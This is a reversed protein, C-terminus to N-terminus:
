IEWEVEDSMQSGCNPCFPKHRNSEIGGIGSHKGCVSCWSQWRCSGKKQREIWHGITREQDTRGIEVGAKFADDRDKETHEFYDKEAKHYGDAYGRKYICETPETQAIPKTAESVPFFDILVVNEEGEYWDTNWIFYEDEDMDVMFLTNTISGDIEIVAIIDEIVTIHNRIYEGITNYPDQGYPVKFM